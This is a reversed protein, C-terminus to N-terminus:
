HMKREGNIFYGKIDEIFNEISEGNNQITDIYSEDNDEIADVFLDALLCDDMQSIVFYLGNNTVGELSGDGLDKIALGAIVNETM